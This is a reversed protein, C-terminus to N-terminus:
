IGEVHIEVRPKNRDVRRYEHKEIIQRDNQIVGAKQLLDYVIAADLDQRNSPYYVTVICRLPGSLRLNRAHLPVQAIFDEEFHRAKWNKIIRPKGQRTSLTKSNKMSYVVGLIVFSVTSVIESAITGSNTFPAPATSHSLPTM